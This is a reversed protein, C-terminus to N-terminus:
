FLGEDPSIESYDYESSSETAENDSGLNQSNNKSQPIHVINAEYVVLKLRQYKQGDKEWRDQHLKADISMGVGKSLHPFLNNYREGILEISVFNPENSNTRSNYSNFCLSFEIKPIKKEGIENRTPDTAIRGTLITRNIDGM